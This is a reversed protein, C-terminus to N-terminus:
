RKSKGNAPACNETSKAVCESMKNAMAQEISAEHAEYTESRSQNIYRSIAPIAILFLMTLIVIVALIEILTFGKKDIKKNIRKKM